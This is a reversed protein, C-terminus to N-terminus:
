LDLHNKINKKFVLHIFIILLAPILLLGFDFDFPKSNFYSIINFMIVSIIIIVSGLVERIILYFSGVIYGLPIFIFLLYEVEKLNNMEEIDFEGIFFIIFFLSVVISIAKLVLLVINLFKNNM